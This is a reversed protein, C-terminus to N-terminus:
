KFFSNQPEYDPFEEQLDIWSAQSYWDLRKLVAPCWCANDTMMTTPMLRFSATLAVGQPLGSM